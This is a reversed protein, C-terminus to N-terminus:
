RSSKLSRRCRATAKLVPQADYSAACSTLCCIILGRRGADPVNRRLVHLVGVAHYLVLRFRLQPEGEPLQRGPEVAGAAGDDPPGVHRGGADAARIGQMNGVHGHVLVGALHVDQAVVARWSAPVAM